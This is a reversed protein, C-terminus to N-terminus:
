PKGFPTDKIEWINLFVFKKPKLGIAEREQFEIINFQIFATELFM